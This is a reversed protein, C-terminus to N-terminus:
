VEMMMEYLECIASDQEAITEGQALTTEYLECIAADSDEMFVPLSAIANQRNEFYATVEEPINAM